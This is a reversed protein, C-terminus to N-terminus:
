GTRWDISSCSAIAPPTCSQLRGDAYRWEGEEEEWSSDATEPDLNRDAV